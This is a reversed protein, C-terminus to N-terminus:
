CWGGGLWHWMTNLCSWWSGLTGCFACVALVIAVAIGLIAAVVAAVAWQNEVASPRSISLLRPEAYVHM